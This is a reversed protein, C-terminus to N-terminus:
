AQLLFQSLLNIIYYNISIYPTMTITVTVSAKNKHGKFPGERKRQARPLVPIIYTRRTGKLQLVLHGEAAFLRLRDLVPLTGTHSLGVAPDECLHSGQPTYFGTYHHTPGSYAQVRQRIYSGAVPIKKLFM